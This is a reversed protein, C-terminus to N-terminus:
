AVYKHIADNFLYLTGTVRALIRRFFDLCGDVGDNPNPNLSGNQVQAHPKSSNISVVFLVTELLKGYDDSEDSAVSSNLEEDIRQLLQRCGEVDQAAGLKEYIDVARLAESKAQELKDQQYWFYAQLEM